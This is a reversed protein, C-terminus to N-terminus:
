SRLPLREKTEGRSAPPDEWMGIGTIRQNARGSLHKRSVNLLERVGKWFGCTGTTGVTGITDIETSWCSVGPNRSAWGCGSECNTGESNDPIENQSTIYQYLKDVGM